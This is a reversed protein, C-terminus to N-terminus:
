AKSMSTHSRGGDVTLIHGTVYSAKVLFVIAQAIDEPTGMRQAPIQQLVQQKDEEQLTQQPWLIAGPAVGVVRIEPALEVALSKTMSVLAAKAMCYLTHNNLPREAHIDLMNVIVGHNEKLQELCFQSLFLPAQMNSGVLQQWQLPTITGMPTPYFSSANNILVDLRGFAQQAQQAILALTDLECLDGEVLRCSDIRQTNLENMLALAETRSHHCHIVINYDLQHLHRATCAGIRKASGTIFAVKRSM